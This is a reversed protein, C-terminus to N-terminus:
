FLSEIRSIAEESDGALLFVFRGKSFVSCEIGTPSLLESNNPNIMPKSLLKARSDLMRRLKDTDSQYKAKFIHIESPFVSRSMYICYSETYRLEELETRSGYYLYGLHPPSIYNVSSIDSGNIYMYGDGTDLCSMVEFASMHSASSCSGLFLTFVLLLLFM